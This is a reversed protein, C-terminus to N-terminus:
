VSMMAYAELMWYWSAILMMLAIILFYKLLQTKFLTICNKILVGWFLISLIFTWSTSYINTIRFFDGFAKPISLVGTIYSIMLGEVLVVEKKFAFVAGIYSIGTCILWLILFSIIVQAKNKFKISLIKLIKEM